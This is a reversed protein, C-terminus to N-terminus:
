RPWFAWSRWWTRVIETLNIDEKALRIEGTDTKSLFLLDEVIRSMRNIEELNSRLVQEYDQLSREKRLAVEMEGKLVTLPTKLEHSADSTFQKIQDFSKGLRFIMENFTEVLSTLEDRGKPVQISQNLNQSTILRATRTVHGVPKLV